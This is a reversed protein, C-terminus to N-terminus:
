SSKAKTTARSYLRDFFAIFREEQLVGEATFWEGFSGDGKVETGKADGAGTRTATVTIHYKDSFKPSYSEVRVVVGSKDPKTELLLNGEVYSAIYQLVFSIVWYGGCGLIIVM